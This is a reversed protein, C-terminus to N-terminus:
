GQRLQNAADMMRESLQLAEANLDFSRQARILETMAQGLDVTSIDLAGQTVQVDSPLTGPARNIVQMPGRTVRYTSDGAPELAEEPLPVRVLAIRQSAGVGNYVTGDQAISVSGNGPKAIARGNVDLVPYGQATTLIFGGGPAAAWQFQGNRTVRPGDPAQVMFYADGTVALDTDIGTQQIAGTAPDVEARTALVGTGGRWGPPTNRGPVGSATAQPQLYATLTDAFSGTLTQYGPTDSNSINEAVRNLWAEGSRM